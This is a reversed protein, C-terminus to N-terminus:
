SLGIPFHDSTTPVVGRITLFGAVIAAINLNNNALAIGYDLVNGSQQTGSPPSLIRMPMSNPARALSEELHSPASNFDGMIRATANPYYHSVFNEIMSVLLPAENHARSGNSAAHITFYINNGIRIGLAPRRTWTGAPHNSDQDYNNSLSELTEAVLPEIVFIEDARSRSIIAINTRPNAQPRNPVNVIRNYHYVFVANPDSENRVPRGSLANWLNETVGPNFENIEDDASIFCVDVPASTRLTGVPLQGAEQILFINMQPNRNLLLRVDGWRAGQTNWSGATFRPPNNQNPPM